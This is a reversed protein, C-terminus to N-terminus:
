TATTQWCHHRWVSWFLVENWKTSSVTSLSLWLDPTCSITSFGKRFQQFNKLMRFCRQLESAWLLLHSTPFWDSYKAMQARTIESLLWQLHLNEGPHQSVQQLHSVPLKVKISEPQQLTLASANLMCLKSERCCVLDSITNQLSKQCSCCFFRCINQKCSNALM